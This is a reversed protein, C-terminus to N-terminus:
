WGLEEKRVENLAKSRAGSQLSSRIAKGAANGALIGSAAGAAGGLLHGYRGGMIKRGLKGGLHMGAVGGSMTAALHTIKGKHRIKNEVRWSPSRRIANMEGEDLGGSPLNGVLARQVETMQSRSTSVKVIGDLESFFGIITQRDM